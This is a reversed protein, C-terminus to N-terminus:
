RGPATWPNPAPNEFERDIRRKLEAEIMEHIGNYKDYWTARDAGIADYRDQKRQFVTGFLEASSVVYEVLNAMTQYRHLDDDPLNAVQEPTLERLVGYVEKGAPVALAIKRENVSELPAGAIQEAYTYDIEGNEMMGSLSHAIRMNNAQSLREFATQPQQFQLDQYARVATDRIIQALAREDLGLVHAKKLDRGLVSFTYDLYDFKRIYDNKEQQFKNFFSLAKRRDEEKLEGIKEKPQAATAWAESRESPEAQPPQSPPAGLPNAAPSGQLHITQAVPEKEVPESADFLQTYGFYGVAALTVGAAWNRYSKSAM